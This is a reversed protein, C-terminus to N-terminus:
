VPIGRNWGPKQMLLDDHHRLRCEEVFALAAVPDAMFRSYQADDLRYYENYDAVGITVPVSAYHDGSRADKGLAYRDERSFYEDHPDIRSAARIIAQAAELERLHSKSIRARCWEDVTALAALVSQWDAASEFPLSSDRSVLRRWGRGSPGSVEGSLGPRESDVRAAFAFREYLESSYELSSTSHTVRTAKWGFYGDLVGQLNAFYDQSSSV